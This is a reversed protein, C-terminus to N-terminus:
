ESAKLDITKGPSVSFPYTANFVSYGADNRLTLEMTADTINSHYTFHGSSESGLLQKYSYSNGGNLASSGSVGTNIQINKVTANYILNYELKAAHIETINVTVYHGDGTFSLSVKPAQDPTLQAVSEPTPTPTLTVKSGSTFKSKAFLIGGILLIVILAGILYNSKM